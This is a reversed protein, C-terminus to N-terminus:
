DISYNLINDDYMKKIVAHMNIVDYKSNHANDMDKNFAFRYIENLSPNKYRGYQNIIKLIGKTHKMTCLLIKKDIENIIYIKNRRYLESKIVNIDFAINHAIIHTVKTLSNYFEEFAYDFEIGNDSIDNTIGHFVSNNIDYNDRKIIHDILELQKFQNDTIMYSLQVIRASNYRDLLKYFPYDGWKLNLNKANPLGNTETDIFLAM